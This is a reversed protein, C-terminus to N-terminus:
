PHDLRPAGVVVQAASLCRALSVNLNEICLFLYFPLFRGNNDKRGRVIKKVKVIEVEELDCEVAKRKVMNAHNYPATDLAYRLPISGYDL